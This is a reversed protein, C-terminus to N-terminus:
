DAKETKETKVAKARPKKPADSKVEEAFGGDILEKARQESCEFVENVPRTVYGNQRDNFATTVRIKM